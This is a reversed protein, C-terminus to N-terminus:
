NEDRGLLLVQFFQTGGGKHVCDRSTKKQFSKVDRKGDNESWEENEKAPQVDGKWGQFASNGPSLGQIM